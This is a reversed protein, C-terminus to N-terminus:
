NILGGDIIQSTGTIFKSEDSALFVALMAVEEVTGIRGMPSTSLINEGFIKSLIQMSEQRSDKSKIIAKALEAMTRNNANKGLMESMKTKIRTPCIANCRVGFKAYDASISKTLGLIASKTTAYSCRNPVGKIGAVSSMNIISGNGKDIMSPLYARSMYFQSLVNIKFSLDWEEDTCTLISNEFAAGVNNFLIDTAPHQQVLQNISDLKTVDCVAIDVDIEKKLNELPELNLGVAIVRAGEQSFAIATARGIGSGAGTVIAIKGELRKTSM